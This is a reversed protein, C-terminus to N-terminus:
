ISQSNSFTCLLHKLLQYGFATYFCNGDGRVFQISNCHQKLNQKQMLKQIQYQKCLSNFDETEREEMHRKNSSINQLNKIMKITKQLRAENSQFKINLQQNEDKYEDQNIQQPIESNNTQIEEINNTNTEENNNINIEQNGIKVDQNQENFKNINDESKKQKEVNGSKQILNYDFPKKKEKNLKPLYQQSQQKKTNSKKTKNQKQIDKKPQNIPQKPIHQFETNQQQQNGIASKSIPLKDQLKSKGVEKKLCQEQAKQKSQNDFKFNYIDERQIKSQYENGINETQKFPSKPQKQPQHM